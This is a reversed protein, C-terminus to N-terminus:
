LAMQGKVSKTKGEAPHCAVRRVLSTLSDTQVGVLRGHSLNYQTVHYWYCPQIGSRVNVM